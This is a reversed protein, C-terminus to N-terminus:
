IYKLRKRKTKKLKRSIFIKKTKNRENKKKQVFFLNLDNLDKFYNISEEWKINEINKHVKLFNYSKIDKFYKKIDYNDLIFNYSLISLLRFKKNEYNMNKKIIKMMEDKKLFSNELHIEEKKHGFLENKRNIYYMNVQIRNNETILFDHYIENEEEIKKIWDDNFLDDDDSFDEEMSEVKEEEM